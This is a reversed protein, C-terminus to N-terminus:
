LGLESGGGHKICFLVENENENWVANLLHLALQKESMKIGEKLSIMIFIYVNNRDIYTKKLYDNRKM